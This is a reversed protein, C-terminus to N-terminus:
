LIWRQYYPVMLMQMGLRKTVIENMQTWVKNMAELLRAQESSSSLLKLNLALQVHELLRAIDHLDAEFCRDQMSKQVKNYEDFLEKRRDCLDHNFAPICLASWHTKIFARLENIVIVQLETAGDLGRELNHVTAATLFFCARDAKLRKSSGEELEFRLSDIEPYAKELLEQM